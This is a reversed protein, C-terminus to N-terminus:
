DFGGKSSKGNQFCPRQSTVLPVAAEELGALWTTIHPTYTFTKFLHNFLSYDPSRCIRKKIILWARIMTQHNNNGNHQVKLLVLRFRHLTLVLTLNYDPCCCQHLESNWDFFDRGWSFKAHAQPRAQVRCWCTCYNVQPQRRADEASVAAPELFTM